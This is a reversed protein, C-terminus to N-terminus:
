QGTRTPATADDGAAPAGHIVGDKMVFRVGRLVAVDAVPDADVAILDAVYGPLIRGLSDKMGLVAAGNRTAARIAEAAPVGSDVYLGIEDATATPEFSPGGDTGLALPIGARWARGPGAVAADAWARLEEGPKGDSGGAFMDLKSRVFRAVFATPVLYAGQKRFLRVSEDDFYTGHEITRAGHGLALNIAATSHAHAAVPRGAQQASAAVAQMEDEFLIPPADARGGAERGSGSVTVKIWDSGREINERVARRCSEGGDCGAPRYPIEGAVPAKAGHGGTRSIIRGAAVIRPGPVDGRAIADRLALTVGSNDGVDRVTTVGAELLRRAYGAAALALRAESANTAADSDMIISLHVHLDILGPLLYKDSLDVLRAGSGYSGPPRFGAEVSIIKGDRVVVTHAGQAPEGPNALVHGAHIVIPPAPTSTTPEAPEASAGPAIALLLLLATRLASSTM